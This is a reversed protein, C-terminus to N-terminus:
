LLSISSEDEDLEEEDNLVLWRGANVVTPILVMALATKM